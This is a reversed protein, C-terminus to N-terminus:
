EEDSRADPIAELLRGYEDHQLGPYLLVSPDDVRPDYFVHQLCLGKAPAVNYGRYRGGQGPPANDGVELMRSVAAPPLRGEGVAVLLGSIHRVMKYLFGNGEVEIRLARPMDGEAGLEVVDVRSLTKVPNRKRPKGGEEGINSLQTFDHTGVLLAAAARMAGVDLRRRVHHAYRHRLPDHAEGHTVSYQYCKGLASCTVSFDPATRNMRVVRIDPPLISNLKYPLKNPDLDDRSCSFQVVQGRAHVGSDTRGAARVGLVAREERLVTGLAAEVCRQVTPASPQLQWGCYETGDYSIVMRYSYRGLRGLGGPQEGGRFVPSIAGQEAVAPLCNERM